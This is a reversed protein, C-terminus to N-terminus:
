KPSMDKSMHPLLVIVTVNVNKIARSQMKGLKMSEASTEMEANVKAKRCHPTLWVLKNRAPM